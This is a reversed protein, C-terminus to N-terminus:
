YRPIEQFFSATVTGTRFLGACPPLWHHELLMRLPDRRIPQFDDVNLVCRGAGALFGNTVVVDAHPARDLADLRTRLAGPLLEDDDDLVAFYPTDVLTRGTHLARPLNAEGSTALRVDARRRLQELVQPAGADGNVVVLPIGRAGEQSVVTDIARALSTARERRAMTPIIISVDPRGSTM